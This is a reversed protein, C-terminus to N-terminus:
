RKRSVRLTESPKEGFRDAYEQSFRGLHGFGEEFAIKTVSDACNPDTLRQRVRDLRIDRLYSMPSTQRFRRFSSLLTRAPVDAADAIDALCIAQSANERIFTEARKVTSPAASSAHRESQGAAQVLLGLLLRQYDFAIKSNERALDPRATMSWLVRVWSQLEPRDLDIASQLNPNNLGTNRLFLGSGIRLVFQECDDSFEANLPSGPPLCAGHNQDLFIDDGHTHLVATGRRCFIILHYDEVHSAKVQMRGFKISGLGLGAIDVFDMQAKLHRTSGVPQLDHPQMVASIRARTEEIDSSEFLRHGKLDLDHATIMALRSNTVIRGAPKASCLFACPWALPM